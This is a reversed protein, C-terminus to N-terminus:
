NVSEKKIPKKLSKDLKNNTDKDIFSESITAPSVAHYSANVECGFNILDGDKLEHVTCKEGNIFIGNQSKKGELDGDLIWFSEQNTKRNLKRILTAHKRSVQRSHIVISNSSHRGLSYKSEELSITRRSNNDELVLIYRNDTNKQTYDM